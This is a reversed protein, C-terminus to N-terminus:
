PADWRALVPGDVPRARTKCGTVAGRWASGGKRVVTSLPQEDTAGAPRDPGQRTIRLCPHWGLATSPRFLWRASVGRDARVIVTWDAPPGGQLHAFRGEWQPRWAGNVPAPVVNWAVPIASGRIVGRRNRITCRQGLPAADLALALTSGDAPLVQIVWRLWPAFGTTGDM